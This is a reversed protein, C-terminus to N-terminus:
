DEQQEQRRNQYMSTHIIVEGLKTMVCAWVKAVMKRLVEPIANEQRLYKKIEGHIMTEEAMEEM